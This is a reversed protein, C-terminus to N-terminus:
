LTFLHQCKTCSNRVCMKLESFFILQLVIQYQKQDCVHPKIIAGISKMFVRHVTKYLNHEVSDSFLSYVSAIYRTYLSINTYKRFMHDEIQAM